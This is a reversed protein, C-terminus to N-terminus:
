CFLKVKDSHSTVTTVVKTVSVIMQSMTQEGNTDSIEFDAGFDCFIQGALGRTDAVIFYIGATHCMQGVELQEDLTSNTLVVVQM